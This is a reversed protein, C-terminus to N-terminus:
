CLLTCILTLCSRADPSRNADTHHVRAFVFLSLAGPKLHLSSLVRQTTQAAVPPVVISFLPVGEYPPGESEDYTTEALDQAPLAVFLGFTLIMLFIVAFCPKTAGGVFDEYCLRLFFDIHHAPHYHSLNPTRRDFAIETPIREKIAV